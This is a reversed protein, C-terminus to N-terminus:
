ERRTLEIKKKRRLYHQDKIKWQRVLFCYLVTIQREFYFFISANLFLFYPILVKTLDINDQELQIIMMRVEEEAFYLDFFSYWMIRRNLNM